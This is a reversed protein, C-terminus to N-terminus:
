SKQPRKRWVTIPSMQKPCWYFRNEKGLLEKIFIFIGKLSKYTYHSFLMAAPSQYQLIKGRYCAQQYSCAEWSPIYLELRQGRTSKAVQDKARGWICVKIPLLPNYGTNTLASLSLHYKNHYLKPHLLLVGVCSYDNCYANRTHIWSKILVESTMQLIEACLLQTVAIQKAFLHTRGHFLAKLVDSNESLGRTVSFVVLTLLNPPHTSLRNDRLIWMPNTRWIEKPVLIEWIFHHLTQM